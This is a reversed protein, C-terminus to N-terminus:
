ANSPEKTITIKVHDGEKYDHPIGIWVRRDLVDIYYAGPKNEARYITAIFTLPEQAPEM